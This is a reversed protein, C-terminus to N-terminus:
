VVKANSEGFRRHPKIFYSLTIISWSYRRANVQGSVGQIGRLGSGKLLSILIM